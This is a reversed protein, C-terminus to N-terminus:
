CAWGGLRISVDPRESRLACISILLTWDTSRCMVSAMVVLPVLAEDLPHTLHVANGEPPTCSVLADGLTDPPVEQVNSVSASKAAM